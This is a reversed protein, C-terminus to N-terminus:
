ASDEEAEEDGEFQMPVGLAACARQYTSGLDIWDEDVVPVIFGKRHWKVGGTDNIDQVFEELVSRFRAAEDPAPM